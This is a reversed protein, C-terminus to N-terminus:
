GKKGSMARAAAIMADAWTMRPNDKLIKACALDLATLNLRKVLNALEGWGGESADLGVAAGQGAPLNFAPPVKISMFEDNNPVPFGASAYVEEVWARRNKPAGTLAVAWVYSAEIVNAVRGGKPVGGEISQGVARRGNSGKQIKLMKEWIDHAVEDDDIWLQHTLRTGKHGNPLDVIEYELPEGVANLVGAPHEAILCGGKTAMDPGSFYPSWNIGEQVVVHGQIDAHDTSALGKIIGPSSKKIPESFGYGHLREVIDLTPIM